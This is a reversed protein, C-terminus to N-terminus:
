IRLNHHGMLKVMKKGLQGNKYPEKWTKGISIGQSYPCSVVKQM